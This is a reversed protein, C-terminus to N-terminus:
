TQQNSPCSEGPFLNLYEQSLGAAVACLYGLLLTELDGLVNKKKPVIDSIKM